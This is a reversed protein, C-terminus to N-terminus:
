FNLPTEGGLDRERECRKNVSKTLAVLEEIKESVTQENFPIKNELAYRNAKTLVFQKKEEGTFHAYQEVDAIFLQLATALRGLAALKNKAKVNKVLPILLGTLTAAFGLCASVVSIIEKINEM